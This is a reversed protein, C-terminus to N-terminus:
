NWTANTTSTPWVTVRMVFSTTARHSCTNHSTSYQPVDVQGSHAIEFGGFEDGFWSEDVLPEPQRVLGDFQGSAVRQKFSLTETHSALLRVMATERFCLTGTQTEIQRYFAVAAPWLEALRWTPVLRQGTVPTILGAAVRSSTIPAERDVVLVRMGSWKLWWALATGALGQGIVIVDFATSTM